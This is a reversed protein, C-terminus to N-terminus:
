WSRSTLHFGFSVPCRYVQLSCGGESMRQEATERATQENPYWNKPRGSGSTCSCGGKLRPKLHWKDCTRCHYPELDYGYNLKAYSVSESAEPFSDYETKAEGNRKMCTDSKRCM